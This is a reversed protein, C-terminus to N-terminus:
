EKWAGAMAPLPAEAARLQKKTDEPRVSLQLEILHLGKVSGALGAQHWSPHCRAAAGYLTLAPM